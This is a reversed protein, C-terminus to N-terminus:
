YIFFNTVNIFEPFLKSDDGWLILLRSPSASSFLVQPLLIDSPNRLFNFLSPFKGVLSSPYLTKGQPFYQRPKESEMRHMCRQVVFTVNILDTHSFVVNKTRRVSFQIPQLSPFQGQSLV